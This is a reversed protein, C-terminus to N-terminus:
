RETHITWHTEEVSELHWSHSSAKSSGFRAATLESDDRGCTPGQYEFHAGHALLM